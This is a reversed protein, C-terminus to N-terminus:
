GGKKRKELTVSNQQAEIAAIIKGVSISYMDHTGNMIRIQVGQKLLRYAEKDLILEIHKYEEM